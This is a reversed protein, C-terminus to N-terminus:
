APVLGRRQKSAAEVRAKMVREAAKVLKEPTYAIHSVTSEMQESERETKLRKELIEEYEKRNM